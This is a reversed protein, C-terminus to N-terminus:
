KSDSPKVHMMASGRSSSYVAPRQARAPRHDIEDVLPHEDVLQDLALAHVMGHHPRHTVPRDHM